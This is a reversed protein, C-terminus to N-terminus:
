IKPSSNIPSFFVTPLKKLFVNASFFSSVASGASFFGVRGAAFGATLFDVAFGAAFGAAELDVADFCVAALDADELAATELVGTEFGVGEFDVGEFGVDELAATELAATELVGAEFDVGEFDVDELDVAGRVAIELVAGLDACAADVVAARRVGAAGALDSVSFPFAGTSSELFMVFASM